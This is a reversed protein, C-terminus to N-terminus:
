EFSLIISKTQTKQPRNTFHPRKPTSVSNFVCQKGQQQIGGCGWGPGWGGVPAHSILQLTILTRFVPSFVVFLPLSFPNFSQIWGWPNPNPNFHNVAYGVYDTARASVRSVVQKHELCLIAGPVLIYLMLWDDLQQMCTWLARSPYQLPETSKQSQCFCVFSHRGKQSQDVQKLFFDGAEWTPTGSWTAVSGYPTALALCDLREWAVQFEQDPKGKAVTLTCSDVTEHIRTFGRRCKYLNWAM